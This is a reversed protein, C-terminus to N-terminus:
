QMLTVNHIFLCDHVTPDVAFVEGTVKNKVVVFDHDRFFPSDFYRHINEGLLYLKGINPQATWTADLHYKKLLYNCTTAFFAAYGVCHAAKSHILQNPDTDNDSATFHLQRSTLNNALQVIDEISLNQGAGTNTEIYQILQRDTSTYNTRPGVSQYAIIQRYICGRFTAVTTVLILLTLAIKKLTKM